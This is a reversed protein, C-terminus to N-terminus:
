IVLRSKKFLTLTAKGKIEQMIRSKFIREGRHKSNNFQKFAFVKKALLSDIKKKDFAQFLLSPNSIIGDQRLKLSLELDKKEKASLFLKLATFYQKNKSGKLRRHGQKVYHDVTITDEETHDVTITDEEPYDVTITIDPLTNDQSTISPNETYYPKVVTSRFNTLKYLM